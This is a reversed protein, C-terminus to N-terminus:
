IKYDGQFERSKAIHREARIKPRMRLWALNPMM